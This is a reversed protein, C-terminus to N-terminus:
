SLVSNTVGSNYKFVDVFFLPFEAIVSCIAVSELQLSMSVAYCLAM